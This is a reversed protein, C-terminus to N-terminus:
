LKELDSIKPLLITFTTGGSVTSQVLLKGHHKQIIDYSISLGLGTGEGIDKTTFFPDFIKNLIQEPIGPGNDTITCVIFEDQCETTVSIKGVINKKESKIAQAANLLINLLVQNIEGGYCEISPLPSLKKEVEAVYKIENQLIQLRNEVGENLNYIVPRNHNDIHAFNKLSNIISVIRTFGEDTEKNIKGVDKIITDIKLENKTELLSQGTKLASNYNNEFIAQELCHLYKFINELYIFLVM